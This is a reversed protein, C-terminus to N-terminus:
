ADSEIRDNHRARHSCLIESSDHQIYVAMDHCADEGCDSGVSEEGCPEMYCHGGSVRVDSLEAVVWARQLLPNRRVADGIAMTFQTLTMAAPAMGFLGQDGMAM